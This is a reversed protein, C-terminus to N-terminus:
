GQLSRKHLNWSYVFPIILMMLFIGGFVYFVLPIPLLLSLIALLISCWFWLKSSFHHTARWIDENKLTWPVRFGAFRNPKLSYMYNAICALLIGKAALIIQFGALNAKQIWYLILISMGSIFFTLLVGVKALMVPANALKKKNVFSGIGTFLGYLLFTLATIGGTLFFINEKPGYNDPQGSFNFNYPISAPLDNYIFALYLWPITAVISAEIWTFKRKM